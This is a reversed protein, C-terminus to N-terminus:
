VKPLFMGTALKYTEYSEGFESELISAEEQRASSYYLVILVVCSIWLYVSGFLASSTLWVMIYSLYFPHRVVGFAGTTFIQDKVASSAFNLDRATKIAWWFLALSIGYVAVVSATKTTSISEAEWLLGYTFILQVLVAPDNLYSVLKSKNSTIKFFSFRAWILSIIIATYVLGIILQNIVTEM